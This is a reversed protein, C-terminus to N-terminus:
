KPQANQQARGAAIATAPLAGRKYRLGSLLVFEGAADWAANNNCTCWGSGVPATAGWRQAARWGSAHPAPPPGLQKMYLKICPHLSPHTARPGLVLSEQQQTQKQKQKQKRHQKRGTAAPAHSHPVTWAM